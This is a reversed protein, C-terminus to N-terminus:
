ITKSFSRSEHLRGTPSDQLLNTLVPAWNKSPYTISQSPMTDDSCTGFIIAVKSPGPLLQENIKVSLSSAIPTPEHVVQWSGRVPEVFHWFEQHPQNPGIDMLDASPPYISLNVLGALLHWCQGGQKTSVHPVMDQCSEGCLPLYLLFFVHFM